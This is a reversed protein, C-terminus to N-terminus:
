SNSFVYSESIKSATKVAKETTLPVECVGTENKAHVSFQYETSEELGTVVCQLVEGAVDCVHTFDSDSARKKAIAYNTVPVGGDEKPEKWSLAVSEPTIDTIKIKRPASPPGSTYYSICTSNTFFRLQTIIM